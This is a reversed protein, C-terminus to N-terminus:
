AAAGHPVSTLLRQAAAAIAAGDGSAVRHAVAAGFCGRVPLCGRQRSRMTTPCCATLDAAIMPLRWCCPRLRARPSNSRREAFLGRASAITWAAAFACDAGLDETRLATFAESSSADLTGERSLEAGPEFRGPCITHQETQM